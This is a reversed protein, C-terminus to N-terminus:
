TQFSSPDNHNWSPALATGPPLSVSYSRAPLWDPLVSNRFGYSMSAPSPHPSMSHLVSSHPFRYYFGSSCCVKSSGWRSCYPNAFALDSQSVLPSDTGGWSSVM